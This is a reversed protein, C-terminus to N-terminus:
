MTWLRFRTVPYPQAEMGIWMRASGPSYASAQRRGPSGRRAFYM